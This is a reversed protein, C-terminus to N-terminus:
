KIFVMKITKVYGQAVLRAFYIGSSLSRGGRDRGAWQYQHYGVQLHGDALRVVERGRLDYIALAVDSEQPLEFRLTTVPNFPNPYNQHLSFQKPLLNKMMVQTSATEIETCDPGHLTYTMQLSKYVM